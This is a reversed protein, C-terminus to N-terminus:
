GRAILVAVALVISAIVVLFVTAHYQTSSPGPLGAPNCRSCIAVGDAVPGGCRLCRDKASM